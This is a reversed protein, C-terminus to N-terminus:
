SENEFVYKWDAFHASRCRYIVAGSTINHNHAAELVSAYIMNGDTIKKRRHSPGRVKGKMPSHPSGFVYGENLRSKFDKPSVRIFTSDGPKFMTKKGMHSKGGLSSWKSHLDSNDQHIGIKKQMQVKAGVTGAISAQKIRISKPIFSFAKLYQCAWLDSENRNIKWLLFHALYHERETLYTLNSDVDTGGSHKPLIHHCHLGSGRKYLPKRQSGRVCINHYIDAFM